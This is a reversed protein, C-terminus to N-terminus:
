KSYLYDSERTRSPSVIKRKEEYAAGDSGHTGCWMMALILFDLEFLVLFRMMVIYHDRRFFDIRPCRERILKLSLDVGCFRDPYPIHYEACTTVFAYQAQKLRLRFISLCIRGKIHLVYIKKQKLKNIIDLRIPLKDGYHKVPVNSTRYIKVEGNSLNDLIWNMSLVVSPLAAIRPM